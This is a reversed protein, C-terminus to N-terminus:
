SLLTHLNLSGDVFSTMVAHLTHLALSGDTFSAIVALFHTYLWPGM